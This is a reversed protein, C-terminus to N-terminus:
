LPTVFMMTYLIQGKEVYLYIIDYSRATSLSIKLLCPLLFTLMFIHVVYVVQLALSAAVCIIIIVRNKCEDAQDMKCLLGSM